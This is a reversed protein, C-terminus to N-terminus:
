SASDERPTLAQTLPRHLLMTLLGGAGAIGANMLWFQCPSMREYWSGIVGILTNSAFLSLFAAGILTGNMRPPAVRSVLALLTPWYYLFCIGLLVDYTIPFAASPRGDILSAGALVLNALGAIWAGGAILHLEDRPRGRQEQWKWLAFLPPVFLISAAPDISNFWSVPIRFGALTLDVHRDIWILAMNSNQYFAISPFITLMIAVLLAGITRIDRGDLAAPPPAIPNAAAEPLLRYGAAYTLLGLLMLIGAIAFGLHWGYRDALYGILLPGLIAGCNIGISFIAFARTRGSKDESAYLAGVQASINGKLLGCGVILLTLALLFSQDFAMAIHGASMLLAGAMVARKRGLFRDAIWGGLVPTFYVLGTYLGYIQSALALTSGPGFLHALLSRFGAFGVINDIRGPQFLTHSMYLVLISTMGYFSFREWAETFALFGLAVPEGLFGRGARPAPSAPGEYAPDRVDPDRVDPTM